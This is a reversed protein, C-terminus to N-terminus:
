SFNSKIFALSERMLQEESDFMKRWINAASLRPSFAEISLMGEYNISQLAKIIEKFDIHGKGLTSRDNESLQVHILKDKM